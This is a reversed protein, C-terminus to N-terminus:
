KWLMLTMEDYDDRDENNRKPRIGGGSSQRLREIEMTMLAMEDHDDYDKM